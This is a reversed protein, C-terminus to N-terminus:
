VTKVELCLGPITQLANTTQATKHEALTIELTCRVASQRSNLIADSRKLIRMVPEMQPYDFTITICVLAYAEIIASSELVHKATTRYATILGSAGLKTGGFIRVVAVLINTLGFSQIQGYIPMGATNKPEGDDYARYKQEKLGLRWAYCIHNANPHKKRLETLLSKSESESKLPFAYGFFKSKREKLLVQKAPHELTKYQYSGM